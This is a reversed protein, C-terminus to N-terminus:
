QISFLADPIAGNTRTTRFTIRTYDGSAEVLQLESTTLDSAQFTIEIQRIMTRMAQTVPVLTVHIAARSEAFAARFRTSDTLITGQLCAMMIGSIEAIMPNTNVDFVTSRDNDTVSFKGGNMVIIYKFPKVYEWRLRDPKRFYFKGQSRVDESLLSLHKRQTYNSEISQTTRALEQFRAIIRSPDHVARVTLSDARAISTGSVIVAVSLVTLMRKM